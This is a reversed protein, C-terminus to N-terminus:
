SASYNVTRSCSRSRCCDRYGSAHVYTTLDTVDAINKEQLGDNGEENMM